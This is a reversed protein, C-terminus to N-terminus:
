FKTESLKMRVNGNGDYVDCNEFYGDETSKCWDLKTALMECNPNYPLCDRINTKILDM